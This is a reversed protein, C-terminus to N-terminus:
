CTPVLIVAFIGIFGLFGTWLAVSGLRYGLSRKPRSREMTATSM